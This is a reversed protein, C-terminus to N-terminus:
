HYECMLLASIIWCWYAIGVKEATTFNDRNGWKTGPAPSGMATIDIDPVLTPAESAYRKADVIGEITSEGISLHVNMSENDTTTFGIFSVGDSEPLMDWVSIPVRLLVITSYSGWVGEVTIVDKVESPADRLWDVWTPVDFKDSILRFCLLVQPYKPNITAEASTNAPSGGSRPASQRLSTDTAPRNQSIAQPEKSLPALVISRKKESLFYHIPTRRRLPERIPRMNRDVLPAGETNKLRSHKWTQLRGILQTHLDIVKIPPGHVADALEEILANTFSDVGVEAAISEFGGATLVETVTQRSM